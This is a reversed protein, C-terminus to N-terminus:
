RVKGGKWYALRQQKEEKNVSEVIKTSQKEGKEFIQKVKQENAERLAEM